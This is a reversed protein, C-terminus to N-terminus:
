SLGGFRRRRQSFDSIIKDIMEANWDPFLIDYFGLETYGAELLMFGSLRKEGSSRVIMDPLPIFPNDRFSLIDQYTPPIRGNEIANKVAREIEEESSYDLMVQLTLKSNSKTESSLRDMKELLTKTIRERSGSFVVRVGLDMLEKLKDDITKSFLAFLFDVESRPRKWNERSFAYVSLYPIKREIVRHIVRLLANIGEKHGESRKLGRKEAWRGNGDMIIALHEM